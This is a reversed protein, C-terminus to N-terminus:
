NRYRGGTIEEVSLKKYVITYANWSKFHTSEEYLFGISSDPQLVMTSYASGLETVRFSGDWDAALKEPSSWIDNDDNDLAKFYIGVNRRGPGLPLSQLLLHMRKGDSTRTVPVSMLEGNCANRESHVGGNEQGSHAMKGWSGEARRANTFRFINFNRGNSDTRSSILISGDPLEEVKAEDAGKEIPPNDVGGLVKWSQGFNDSYLVFNMRDGNEIQQLVACYLRYYRGKRIYRSQFIRGSAIFMSRAPGFRGKDFLRYISESIDDPKSWNRGGDKSYFRAIGQHLGRTGDHFSVNGACSMILVKSSGRDAVICPDGYAVNMFDGSQAGKGEILPCADEWTKGNDRSIRMMLDIRGDKVLGIDAGSWRYDAVCILSGDQLAAIAPIRYPVDMDSLTTFIEHRDQGLSVQPIALSIAAILCFTRLTM